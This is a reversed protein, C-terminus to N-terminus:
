DTYFFNNRQQCKRLKGVDFSGLHLTSDQILHFHDRVQGSKKEGVNKLKIATNNSGDFKDYQTELQRTPHLSDSTQNGNGVQRSKILFSLPIIAPFNNNEADIDDFSTPAATSSSTVYNIGNTQADKSTALSNMSHVQQNKHNGSPIKVVKAIVWAYSFIVLAIAAIAIIVKKAKSRTCISPRSFPYHVAVYREITFAVMLYISLFCTVQGLYMVLPCMLDSTIVGGYVTELWVAFLNLLFGTDSVALASLYYSSSQSRHKSNCCFIALSLSNGLAGFLCLLPTYYKDILLGTQLLRYIFPPIFSCILAVKILFLNLKNTNEEQSRIEAQCISLM